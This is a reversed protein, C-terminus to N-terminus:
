QVTSPWALLLMKEIQSLTEWAILGECSESVTTGIAVEWSVGPELANEEARGGLIPAGAVVFTSAVFMVLVVPAGGAGEVAFGAGGGDDEAEKGDDEGELVGDDLVDIGAEDVNGVAVWVPWDPVATLEPEAGVADGAVECAWPFKPVPWITPIEKAAKAMNPNIM